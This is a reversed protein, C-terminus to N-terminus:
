FNKKVYLYNTEFKNTLNVQVQTYINTWMQITLSNNINHGLYEYEILHKCFYTVYITDIELIYKRLCFM